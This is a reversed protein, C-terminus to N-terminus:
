GPYAKYLCAFDTEAAPVSSIVLHNLPGSPPISVHNPGNLAYRGCFFNHGDVTDPDPELRRWGTRGSPM